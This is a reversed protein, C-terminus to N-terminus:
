LGEAHLWDLYNLKINLLIETCITCYIGNEHVMHWHGGISYGCDICVHEPINPKRFTLVSKYSM